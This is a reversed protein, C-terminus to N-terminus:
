SGNYYTRRLSVAKLFSNLRTFYKLIGHKDLTLGTPFASLPILTTVSIVSSLYFHTLTFFFFFLKMVLIQNKLQEHDETEM